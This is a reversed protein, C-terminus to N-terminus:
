RVEKALRQFCSRLENLAEDSRIAEIGAGSARSDKVRMDLPVRVDLGSERMNYRLSIPAGALIDSLVDMVGNNVKLAFVRFGPTDSLQDSVVSEATTGHESQLYAFHPAEMQPAAQPTIQRLGVKLLGGVAQHAGAPVLQLSFSGAVAVLAGRKYAFDQVAAQYNFTCGSFRGSAYLSDAAVSITGTLSSLDQAHSAAAGAILVTLWGRRM